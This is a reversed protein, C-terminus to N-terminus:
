GRLGPFDLFLAEPGCPGAPRRVLEVPQHAAPAVVERSICVRQGAQLRGHHCLECARYPQVTHVWPTAVHADRAPRRELTLMGPM